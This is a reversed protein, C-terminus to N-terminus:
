FDVSLGYEKVSEGCRRKEAATLPPVREAIKREINARQDATIRNGLRDLKERLHIWFYDRQHPISLASEPFSGLYAIHKQCPKGNVRRSEVLLAMWTTDYFRQGDEGWYPGFVSSHSTRKRSQWRVFM